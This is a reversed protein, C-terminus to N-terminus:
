VLVESFCAQVGSWGLTKVYINMISKKLLNINVSYNCNSLASTADAM